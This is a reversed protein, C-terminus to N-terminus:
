KKTKAYHLVAKKVLEFDSVRWFPAHPEPKTQKYGDHDKGCTKQLFGYMQKEISQGSLVIDYKESSPSVGIRGNGGTFSMHEKTVDQQHFKISCDKRSNIEDELYLLKTKLIETNKM